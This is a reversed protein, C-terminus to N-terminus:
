QLFAAGFDAVLLVRYYSNSRNDSVNEGDEPVAAVISVGVDKIGPNLINREMCDPALEQLFIKGLHIIAADEPKIYDTTVLIRFNEGTEGPVYGTEAIRDFPTRGDPSVQSLYDNELMDRAHASAAEQLNRNFSLPELGNVLIEHLEPLNNLVEDIDLGLSEAFALPNERVQNILEVLELEAVSVIGTAFDIVSIYSNYSNGGANFMGSCFSIGAEALNRNLINRPRDNEPNLEDLFINEFIIDVASFPSIFNIFGVMGLTEGAASPIFGNNEIRDAVTRGDQSIDSYYGNEMMDFAHASASEQLKENEPFSPLGYVLIDHLEPLEQLIMDPALGLSSAMALPNERADNILELMRIEQAQYMGEEALGPVCSLTFVSLIFVSIKILRSLMKLLPLM